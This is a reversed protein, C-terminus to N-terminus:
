QNISINTEPKPTHSEYLYQGNAKKEDFDQPLPKSVKFMSAVRPTIVMDERRVKPWGNAHIGMVNQQSEVKMKCYRFM